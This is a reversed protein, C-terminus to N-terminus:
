VEMGNIEDLGTALSGIKEDVYEETALGATSPIEPKNMLDNYDGSFLETDESLAGVEQATYSPKKPQKAWKPVTPDTETYDKIFGEDNELESLKTPVEVDDVKQGIQKMGEELEQMRIDIREVFCLYDEEISEVANIAEDVMMKFKVSKWVGTGQVIKLQMDIPGAYRLLSNKVELQYGEGVKELEISYKKRNLFELELYCTGDVFEDEFLFVLMEQENEGSIGLNANDLQVAKNKIVVSNEIM